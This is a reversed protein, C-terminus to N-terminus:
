YGCVLSRGAEQMHERPEDLYEEEEEEEKTPAEILKDVMLGLYSM